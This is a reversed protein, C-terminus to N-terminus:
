SLQKIFLVTATSKGTSENPKFQIDVVSWGNVGKANLIAETSADSDYDEIEDINYSYVAM